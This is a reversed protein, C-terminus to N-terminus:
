KPYCCQRFIARAPHVAQQLTLSLETPQNLLQQRILQAALFASTLGHSGHGISMWLQPLLHASTDTITDPQHC